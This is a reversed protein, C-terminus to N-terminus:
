PKPHRRGWEEFETLLHPVVRDAPGALPILGHRRALGQYNLISRGGVFIPLGQIRDLESFRKNINRSLVFSLGMADPALADVARQLERVPLDVGLFLARWGALELMLGIMLGGGRHRDGQVTALLIRRLPRPNDLTAEDIMRELKRIFFSSAFREQYVQCERRYWREGVDILAPEILRSALEAPGSSGAERRYAEQAADLDGRFLLNVLEAAAEGIAEAPPHDGVGEALRGAHHDAILAGISHGERLLRAIRRLVRVQDPGYRRHGSSTRHPVPFGYRREWVRLSHCSVGALKSVAAISYEPLMVTGSM